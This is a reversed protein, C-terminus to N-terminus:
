RVREFDISTVERALRADKLADTSRLSSQENAPALDTVVSTAWEYAVTEIAVIATM